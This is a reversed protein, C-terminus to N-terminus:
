LNWKGGTSKLLMIETTKYGNELLRSLWLKIKPLKIHMEISVVNSFNIHAVTPRKGFSSCFFEFVLHTFRIYSLEKKQFQVRQM